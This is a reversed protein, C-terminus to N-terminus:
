IFEDEAEVSLVRYFYIITSTRLVVAGIMRLDMFPSVSYTAFECYVIQVISRICTLGDPLQYRVTVVDGSFADAPM